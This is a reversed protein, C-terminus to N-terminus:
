SKIHDEGWIVFKYTTLEELGMPGRAHIKDTSIGIEAGMGLEEGDNFMTSANVLVVASDVDNLFRNAHTYNETVISDTHGSGYQNIHAIAEDIDKVIKVSIIKDLYETQWDDETAFKIDPVLSQTKKCGRVEVGAKKLMRLIYPTEKAHDESILLTELANCVEPMLLKSNLTIRKAKKLDADSDIYVHCIGEFHKIVPIKSKEVISKILTKGGRPIVLDISDTLALLGSVEEHSVTICNITEVPLGESDLAERWLEGLIGNCLSSEKGGKLIIANGSKLAFAGANITVHPRAEYIMLIVGLPARMRGVLIGNPRREMRKLQGVPDPLTIIKELANIRSELKAKGFVLRHLMNEPLGKERALDIDTQNAKIISEKNKRLLHVMKKLIANKKGTSAIAIQRSAKKANQAIAQIDM